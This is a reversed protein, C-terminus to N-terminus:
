GMSFLEKNFPMYLLPHTLLWSNIFENNNDSVLLINKITKFPLIKILDEM